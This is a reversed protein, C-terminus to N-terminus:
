GARSVTSRHGPKRHFVPGVDRPIRARCATSDAVASATISGIGPRTHARRALENDRVSMRIEREYELAKSRL